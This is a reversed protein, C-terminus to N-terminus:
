ALGRVDGGLRSWAELMQDASAFRDAEQGAVSRMLFEALQASVDPRFSRPDDPAAAPDLGRGAALVSAYPHSGTILEYLMVGVGYRDVFADVRSGRAMFDPPMYAPTGAMMTKQGSDRTLNFDIIKVTGSADIMVNAPKIDRHVVGMSEMYVLASLLQEGTAFIESGDMALPGSTFDSLTTGDIWESIVMWEGRNTVPIPGMVRVINPNTLSELAKVEQRLASDALEPYPASPDKRFLKGALIRGDFDREVRYVTGFAGQAGLRTLHHGLYDLRLLLRLRVISKGGLTNM